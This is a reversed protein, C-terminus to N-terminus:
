WGLQKFAEELSVTKLTGNKMEKMAQDLQKRLVPDSMIELTEQWGELEDESMLVVNSGEGRLSIHVYHGPVRAKEALNFFDKRAQTPTVYHPM